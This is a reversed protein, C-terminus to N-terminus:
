RASRRARRSRRPCGPILFADETLHGSVFAAIVEEVPGCTNPIVEISAGGLLSEFARSVAGCILVEPNIESLARARAGLEVEEIRVESRALERKGDLELLLFQRAVDLVPSIRAEHIPMVVRM